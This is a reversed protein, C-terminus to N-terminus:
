FRINHLVFTEQMEYVDLDDEQDSAGALKEYPEYLSKAKMNKYFCELEFPVVPLNLQRPFTRMRFDRLCGRFKVASRANTLKFISGLLYRFRQYKEFSRKFYLFSNEEPHPM